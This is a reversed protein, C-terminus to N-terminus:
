EAEKIILDILDQYNKRDFMYRPLNYLSSNNELPMVVPKQGLGFALLYGHRPIEVDDEQIHKGYPYVYVIIPQLLHRELSMRSKTLEQDFLAPSITYLKEDALLHFWGHAAIYCGSAQLEEVQDWMRYAGMHALIVMLGKIGLIQKVGEPVCHVSDYGIDAGSHFLVSIDASACAEYFKIMRKDEPCFQQYEPHLKIGKVGNEKLFSVQEEFGEFAPHMAGFCIVSKNTGNLEAMRRNIGPVQEPKTAVPQNVSIDVGDKKMFSLLGGLAGDGYYKVGAKSALLDCSQKAIHDPFFHTHFDILMVATIICIEPSLM